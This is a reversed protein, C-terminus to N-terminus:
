STRRPLRVRFCAGATGGVLHVEGGHAKAIARVIPLGLGSGTTGANIAGRGREFTEFIFKRESPPVGDGNDEVDFVVYKKKYPYVRFTICKNEKPTYKWANVLLNVFVQGLALRDGMVELGPHVEVELKLEDGMRVADLAALADKVLDEVSVPVREFPQKGAEIRSLELLKTVLGDLREMEQGVIRLCRQQEVPDTVRGDRLTEIFMRISTIPTRFEHSVSSLFDNQVRALSAGRSVFISGLLYGTLSSTCFALVLIGAVIAVSGQGVVLLIVGTATM